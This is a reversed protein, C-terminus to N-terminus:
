HPLPRQSILLLPTTGRLGEILDLLQTHAPTLLALNGTSLHELDDFCLIPPNAAFTSLDQRLLGAALNLDGVVGNATILYQWLNPPATRTCFPASRSCCAARAM